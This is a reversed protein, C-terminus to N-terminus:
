EHRFRSRCLVYPVLVRKLLNRIGMLLSQDHYLLTFWHVKKFAFYVQRVIGTLAKKKVM